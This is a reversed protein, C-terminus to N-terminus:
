RHTRARARMKEVRSHMIIVILGTMVHAIPGRHTKFGQSALFSESSDRSLLLSEFSESSYTSMSVVLLGTKLNM